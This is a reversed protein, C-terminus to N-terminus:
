SDSEKTVFFVDSIQQYDQDKNLHALANAAANQEAQRKNRGVGRALEHDGLFVGMTFVFNPPKGEQALIRYSPLLTHHRQVLEQLESKYDNIRSECDHLNALFPEFLPLSVQSAVRFNSDLYIAGIMAEFLSAIIKHNRRGDNKEEGKGLVLFQNLGLTQALEYLFASSVLHAKLKSLDGENWSPFRRYLAETVVLNIVSDGLFELKENDPLDRRSGENFSKHILANQMLSRNRFAYNLITEIENM